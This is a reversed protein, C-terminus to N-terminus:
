PEEITYSDIIEQIRKKHKMATDVIDFALSKASIGTVTITYEGDDLRICPTDKPEIKRAFEEIRNLDDIRSMLSSLRRLKETNSM